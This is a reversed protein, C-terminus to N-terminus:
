SRVPIDIIRPEHGSVQLIKKIGDIGISLTSTNVLPHCQMSEARWLAADVVLEVNNAHDNLVALITVAGPEVRLHTRLREPSALSLTGAELRASLAKLDVNKEALVTVLFHRRGKKDRLFLNKSTAGPLPPVVRDAQECTYVPEHDVRQYSIKYEHLLQFIDRAM